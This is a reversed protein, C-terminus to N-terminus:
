GAAPGRARSLRDVVRLLEPIRHARAMRRVWDAAAATEVGAATVFLPRQSGGRLVPVVRDCSEVGAFASKAVGVVPTRGGLAAHLHAGLGPRADPPLWVYGDIVVLGPPAPLLDLVALLCPLERRYFEGPAYPQVTGIERVYTAAPDGAEWSAAVVCAARAGDDQYAVDLFAITETLM